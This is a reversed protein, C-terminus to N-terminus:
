LPQLRDLSGIAAAVEALGAPIQDNVQLAATVPVTLATAILQYTKLRSLSAIPGIVPLKYIVNFEDKATANANSAATSHGSAAGRYITTHFKRFNKFNRLLIM